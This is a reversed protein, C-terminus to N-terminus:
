GALLDGFRHMRGAPAGEERSQFASLLDRVESIYHALSNGGSAANILIAELALPYAVELAREAPVAIHPAVGKGEWDGGTLPDIARGIPIFVEFYPALVYSSGAHAGGDTAEGILKARGQSSLVHALAEGGSFTEKGILVFVPKQGYREGPIISQTWYQQTFNEDRWYISAIHRPQEDFLFSCVLAVMGPYGGSCQRLDLILANTGAISTLAASVTEGGWEPRHLFHMGLYGVNGALREVKHVGYNDLEAELKRQEQWQPNLHLQGDDEPLAEAHWRVWLHEDHNIEQLHITLALALLEAEHIEAYDGAAHHNKLNDCILEAAEPFIYNARIKDCLATLILEVNYTDDVNVSADEETYEPLPLPSGASREPIQVCTHM